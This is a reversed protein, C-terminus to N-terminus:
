CGSSGPPATTTQAISAQNMQNQFDLSSMQSQHRQGGQEQRLKEVYLYTIIIHDMMHVVKSSVDLYPPHSEKRIGLNKQHFRALEVDSEAAKLWCYTAGLKWKYSRKDPGTFYRGNEWSRKELMADAELEKGNFRIITKKLKHWEIVGMTEEVSNNGSWRYKTITTIQKASRPTSVTYLKHGQANSIDTNLYNPTSYTLRM